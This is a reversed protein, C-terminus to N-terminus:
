SIETHAAFCAKERVNSTIVADIYSLFFVRVYVRVYSQKVAGVYSAVFPWNDKSLGYYILSAIIIKQPLSAGYFYPTKDMTIIIQHLVIIRFVHWQRSHLLTSSQAYRKNRSIFYFTKLVLHNDYPTEGTHVYSLEVSTLFRLFSDHLLSDLTLTHLWLQNKFRLSGGMLSSSGTQTKIRLCESGKWFM